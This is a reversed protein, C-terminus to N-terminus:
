AGVFGNLKSVFRPLHPEFRSDLGHQIQDFPWWKVAAFEREDVELDAEVSGDFVYWLSVDTHTTSRGQTATRTIFLPQPGIGAVFSPRVRLEEFLERQAAMAPDEGVDVHGGSPLWLEADRHDVLLALRETLDVLVCYSVLHEPPTAPRATRFIEAGSDLWSLAETRHAHEQADLPELDAILARLQHRM